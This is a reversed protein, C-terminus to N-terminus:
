GLVRMKMFDPELAGSGDHFIIGLLFIFNDLWGVVNTHRAAVESQRLKDAVSRRYPAGGPDGCQCNDEAEPLLAAPPREACLSADGLALRQRAITDRSYRLLAILACPSLPIRCCGATM